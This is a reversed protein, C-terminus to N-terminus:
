FFSPGRGFQKKYEDVWEANPDVVPVNEACDTSTLTLKVKGNTVSLTEVVYPRGCFQAYLEDGNSFDLVDNEVQCIIPSAIKKIFADM